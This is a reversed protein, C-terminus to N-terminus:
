SAYGKFVYDVIVRVTGKPMSYAGPQNGVYDPFYIGITYPYPFDCTSASKLENSQKVTIITDRKLL